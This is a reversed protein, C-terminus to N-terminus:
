IEDHVVARNALADLGYHNVQALSWILDLHTAAKSGLKLHIKLLQVDVGALFFLFVRHKM